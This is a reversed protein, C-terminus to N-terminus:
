YKAIMTAFNWADRCMDSLNKTANWSLIKEAKSPNSYCEVVDSERRQVFKYPIQVNNEKEFTKLLELITYGQGTGLNFTFVGNNNRIEKLAAIHGLALDKVHIFDRICTGDKTPYDNGYILLNSRKKVAVELIASMLDLNKNIANNGILGSEHAGIPNFYRLLSISWNKNNDYLEYCINEISLKNNGYPNEPLLPFTEDVPLHKPIGYVAASSSFVLKNCNFEEMVDFLCRSGNVNNEYYILPKEISESINKYGAFHFVSEIYNEKFIKKLSNEDCLDAEYFIFKKKSISQISDIIKPSSNYFNDFVIVEENEYLLEVVTHSGIYGTGGSVLIAM